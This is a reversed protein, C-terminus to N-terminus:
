LIAKELRVAQNRLAEQFIEVAREQCDEPIAGKYIWFQKIYVEDKTNFTPENIIAKIVDKRTERLMMDWLERIRTKM